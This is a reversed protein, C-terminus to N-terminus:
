SQKRAFLDGWFRANVPIISDNKEKCQETLVQAMITPVANGIMKIADKSKVGDFYNKPFGTISALEEKDLFRKRIDFGKLLSVLEHKPSSTIAGLPRNISKVNREPKGNSNYTEGIFQLSVIACHDVTTITPYPSEISQNHYDGGYYKTIFQQKRKISVSKLLQQNKLIKKPEITILEKTQRKLQTNLPTNIKQSQSGWCHDTIFQLKKVTVLSHCDKTRITNLPTTIDSANVGSGYYSSIFQLHDVFEPAFKKIGGIIRRITNEVPPKGEFISKGLNTLDIKEKCAKWKPLGFLNNENKCHTPEPFTYSYGKKWFVGFFRVRSTYGGYDATNLLRYDFEYGRNKMKDVWEIYCRGRDRSIPKGNEDLDGWAMFERVNEIIIFKPALKDVYRFLHNALTRSDADRPGGGKANSFNTCELSAWLGFVATLHDVDLTRIDEMYHKTEPHNQKHVKISEPDHNVAWIVKLDPNAMAGTTTGGGGAFLDGWAMKHSM